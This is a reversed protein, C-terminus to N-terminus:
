HRRKEVVQFLRLLETQDAVTNLMYSDIMKAEHRAPSRGSRDNVSEM